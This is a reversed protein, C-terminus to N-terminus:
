GLILMFVLLFFFSFYPTPPLKHELLMIRSVVLIKMLLFASKDIAIVATLTFASKDELHIKLSIKLMKKYIVECSFNLSLKDKIAVLFISEQKKLVLYVQSLIFIFVRRPVKEPGFIPIM